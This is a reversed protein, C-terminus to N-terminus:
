SRPLSKGVYIEIIGNDDGIAQGGAELAASFLAQRVTGPLHRLSSSTICVSQLHKERGYRKIMDILRVAIKKLEEAEKVFSEELNFHEIWLVQTQNRFFLLVQGLSYGVLQREPSETEEIVFSWGKSAYFVLSENRWPVSWSLMERKVEDPERHALQAEEFIRIREIDDSGFIKFDISQM